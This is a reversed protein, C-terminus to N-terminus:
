RYRAAPAASMAALDDLVQVRALVPTSRTGDAARRDQNPLVALNM